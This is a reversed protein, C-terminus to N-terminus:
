LITCGNFSFTCMIREYLAGEQFITKAVICKVFRM